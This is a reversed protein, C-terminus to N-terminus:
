NPRLASITISWPASWLIGFDYEPDNHVRFDKFGAASFHRELAPLSFLRMELTTGPGGHFVLDGYEEATGDRTVNKLIWSGPRVECVSYEFLNPFHETSEAEPSFPVSFVAVGGPKLARFLNDFARQIPPAVHEFVDSSIVFDHRDFWKEDLEAIDLFTECHFFTNTYSFKETLRSAYCQNDSMGMGQIDRRPDIEELVDIRGFLRKTLAAALSRFRVTSGCIRCAGSERSISRAPINNDAGCINCRFSLTGLPSSHPNKRSFLTRFFELPTRHM